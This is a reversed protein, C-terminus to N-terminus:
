VSNKETLKYVIEREVTRLEPGCPLLSIKLPNGGHTTNSVAKHIKPALKTPERVILREDLFAEVTRNGRIMEALLDDGALCVSASAQPDLDVVLVSAQSDDAALAEALSVVTTTKGVGGKMNAVAILKGPKKNM